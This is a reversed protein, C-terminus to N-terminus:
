SREPAIRMSASLTEDPELVKMGYTEAGGPLNLADVPHSVPEFCFFDAAGSPSFVVYQDLGEGATIDARIGRRPWDIRAERDWGSFWNNVWRDPVSRSINFDM